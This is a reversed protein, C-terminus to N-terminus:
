AAPKKARYELRDGGWGRDVSRHFPCGYYRGGLSPPLHRCFIFRPRGPPPHAMTKPPPESPADPFTTAGPPPAPGPVGPASGVLSHWTARHRKPSSPTAVPFALKAEPGHPPPAPPTVPRGGSGPPPAEERGPGSGAHAPGADGRGADGRETRDARAAAAEPGAAWLATGLQSTAPCLPHLSRAPSGQLAPWTPAPTAPRACPAHPTSTSAGPLVAPGPVDPSRGAIPRAGSAPPECKKTAEKM